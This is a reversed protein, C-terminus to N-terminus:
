SNSVKLGVQSPTEGSRLREAIQDLKRLRHNIGSKSVQGTTLMEGLEKLTVDENAIRLAAIERLREPLAELGVTSQIYKINDIQRVAANITKNLNATECNVLRNVSNRMDRMIRVDEFHLLASTAGIISLFETIKEAEKLYTIFGNKRELTRANLDFQNMLACIAENHEEYVSFIELHYSSTEPNNVSGSALFAGRLYARKASRKKVFGRDISKTFTMPPELIRLDELIGRTGSKLRVIYVNNKKLKMKRRVLLEIPVEYLDKLLQYMRRAIAANETQVDMIVLQNSFSIAGNMRIFAALEVKADSDSVDMHTLEKKTESAFSM